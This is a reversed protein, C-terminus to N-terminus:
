TSSTTESRKVKRNMLLDHIDEPPGFYICHAPCINDACAPMLGKELRHHCLNCKLARGRERDFTIAQYPCEKMCAQCGSCKESYLIVLGDKRKEIAGEHCVNACPPDDCHNCVNVFFSFHVRDGVKKPGEESVTIFKVQFDFEQKCAVECARCGWCSEHDVSLRWEVPDIEVM